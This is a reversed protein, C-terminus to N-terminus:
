SQAAEVAAAPEAEEDSGGEEALRFSPGSGDVYGLALKAVDTVPLVFKLSLLLAPRTHKAWLAKQAWKLSRLLRTAANNTIQHAALQAAVLDAATQGEDNVLLRRLCFRLDELVAAASRLILLQLANSSSMQPLSTAAYELLPTRGVKNPTHVRVGHDILQRAIRHGWDLPDAMVILRCM